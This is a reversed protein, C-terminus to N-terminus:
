GLCVENLWKRTRILACAADGMASLVSLVELWFLFKQKLFCHLVPVVDAAYDQTVILHKYWSRCAYELAGRIGSEDIRKPLDEVESNLAYDPISCMNKELSKDMLKLCCLLLEIHHGPSIYFRHDTCHASDTIFDPFSRHFSRVPHGIDDYLALLSQISRLLSLVVDCKFGLLTAIALPSLPNVALVMTSLVSRVMDDDKADNKHFAEQLISTYVSPVFGRTSLYYISLVHHNWTWLVLV